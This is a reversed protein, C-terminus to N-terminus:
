PFDDPSEAPTDPGPPFSGATWGYKLYLEHIVEAAAGKAPFDADNRLSVARKFLDLDYERQTM